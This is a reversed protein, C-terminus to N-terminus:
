YGYGPNEILHDNLAITGDGIPLYYNSEPFKPAIQDHDVSENFEIWFKSQGKKFADGDLIWRIGEHAVGDLTEEAIRWRKLDWYRHNEFCLEIRREHRIKDIDISTLDAIGARSRIQNICDLAEGTKGLEFAAEANNLLVEAYRFIQFDTYSYCFWNMNDAAPDLYKRVGFGTHRWVLLGAACMEKMQDGFCEIGTTPDATVSINYYTEGGNKVGVYMSITDAGFVVKGEPDNKAPSGGNANPWESGNTWVWALLRPDRDGFLEDMTWSKSALTNRDVKGSRGDKFEFDEVFNYYPLTYQGVAWANPKPSNCIDWSWTYNGGGVGLFRRVMIAEGNDKKLFVDRMNQIKDSTGKYLSYSCETMIRQSADYSTQFYENAKEAPLGCVLKQTNPDTLQQSAKGYKAISGAYLATRSLLALAAGKGARGAVPQAPLLDALETLESIIFDYVEEESARYPYMDEGTADIAVEKLILPVGGYRKVLAFYNFARIFRAESKLAVADSVPSDDINEIFHNLERNLYYANNWWRFLSSNRQVGNMKYSHYNTQAGRESYKCEDGMTTAHVPGEGEASLGLNGYWNWSASFEVNVPSNGFLCPSDNMMFCSMAYLNALHSEILYSDQWVQDDTYRNTPTQVLYADCSAFVVTCILLIAYKINKM